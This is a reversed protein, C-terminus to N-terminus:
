HPAEVIRIGFRAARLRTLDLSPERVACAQGLGLDAASADAGAGGPELDVEAADRLALGHVPDDVQEPAAADAVRDHVGAPVQTHEAAAVASGPSDADLIRAGVGHKGDDLKLVAVGRERRAVVLTVDVVGLATR